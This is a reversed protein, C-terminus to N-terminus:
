GEGEFDLNFRESLQGNGELYNMLESLLRGFVEEASKQRSYIEGNIEECAPIKDRDLFLDGFSDGVKAISILKRVAKKKVQHPSFFLHLSMKQGKMSTLIQKEDFPFLNAVIAANYKSPVLPKSRDVQLPDLGDREMLFADYQSEILNHSLVGDVVQGNIYDHASSDLAFHALFGIIYALLAEREQKSLTEGCKEYVDKCHAFFRRGSWRHLQSGHGNVENHGLPKYYFLLDPGHVGFDFLERYCVCIIKLQEPMKDICAQGFTHHAYAAPM